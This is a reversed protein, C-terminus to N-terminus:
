DAGIIEWYYKQDEEPFDRSVQKLSKIGCRNFTAAANFALISV